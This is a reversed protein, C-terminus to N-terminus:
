FMNLELGVIKKTLQELETSTKDPFARKLNELTVKKRIKLVDFWFTGLVRHFDLASKISMSRLWCSLSRFLFFEFSNKLAIKNM